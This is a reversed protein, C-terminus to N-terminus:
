GPTAGPAKRVVDDSATAPSPRPPPTYRVEVKAVAKGEPRESEVYASGVVTMSGGLTHCGATLSLLLPLLRRM